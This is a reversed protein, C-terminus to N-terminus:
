ENAGAPKERKRSHPPEKPNELHLMMDDTVLVTKKRERYDTHM